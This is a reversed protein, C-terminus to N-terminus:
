HVASTIQTLSFSHSATVTGLMRDPGTRLRPTDKVPSARDIASVELTWTKINGDWPGDRFSYDGGGKQGGAFPSHNHKKREAQTCVFLRVHWWGYLFLLESCNEIRM